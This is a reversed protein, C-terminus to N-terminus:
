AMCKKIIYVFMVFLINILLTLCVFFFSEIYCFTSQDLVFYNIYVFYYVCKKIFMNLYSIFYEFYM